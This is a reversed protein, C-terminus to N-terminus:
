DRTLLHDFLYSFCGFLPTLFSVFEFLQKQERSVFNRKVDKKCGNFRWFLEMFYKKSTKTEQSGVPTTTLKRGRKTLKKFFLKFINKCKTSKSEQSNEERSDRPSNHDAEDRKLRLSCYSSGFSCTKRFSTVISKDKLM